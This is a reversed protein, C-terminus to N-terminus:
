NPFEDQFAICHPGPAHRVLVLDWKTYKGAVWRAADRRSHTYIALKVRRGRRKQSEVVAIYLKM